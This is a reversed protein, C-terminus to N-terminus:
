GGSKGMSGTAIKYNSNDLTFKKNKVEYGLEELRFEIIKNFENIREDLEEKKIGVSNLIIHRKGFYSIIEIPDLKDFDIILNACNNAIKEINLDKSRGLLDELPNNIDELASQFNQLKKTAKNIDSEFIFNNIKLIKKIVHSKNEATIRKTVLNPPSADDSQQLADELKELNKAVSNALSELEDNETSSSSDSDTDLGSDADDDSSDIDTDSSDSSSSDSSSSDGFASEFDDSSSNDDTSNLDSIADADSSDDKSDNEENLLFRLNNIKRFKM